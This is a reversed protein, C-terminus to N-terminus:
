GNAFFEAYTEKLTGFSRLSGCGSLNDSDVDCWCCPYKSSHSQIGCIINAMKLDCSIYFAGDKVQVNNVVSQCERM